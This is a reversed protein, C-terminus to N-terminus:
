ADTSNAAAALAAGALLLDAPTDVDFGLPGALELYTAGAALAEARHAARSAIGFAPEILTPPSVLLANTGEGHRDPVLAVVGRLGLAAAGQAGERCADVLESIAGPTIAPLDAPLVLVATAGRAVGLSRGADIAANLGPVREVLGIAGHAKAMRAAAPDLTVVVTGTVTSADRTAVLTRRLMETVLATREELDLDERLRTKATRLGRIPVIAWTRSLDPGAPRNVSPDV